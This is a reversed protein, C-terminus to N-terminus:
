TSITELHSTITCLVGFGEYVICRTEIGDQKRKEKM